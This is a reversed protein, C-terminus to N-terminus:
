WFLPQIGSPRLLQQNPALLQATITSVESSIARAQYVGSPDDGLAKDTEM